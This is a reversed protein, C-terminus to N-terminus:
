MLLYPSCVAPGPEQLRAPVMSLAWGQPISRSWPLDWFGPVDM